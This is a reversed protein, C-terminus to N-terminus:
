WGEEDVYRRKFDEKTKTSHYDGEINFLVADDPISIDKLESFKIEYDGITFVEYFTAMEPSFYNKDDICSAMKKTVGFFDEGDGLSHGVCYVNKGAKVEKKVDCPHIEKGLVIFSSSSSNSVFGNRIKM